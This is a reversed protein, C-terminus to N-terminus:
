SLSVLPVLWHAAMLNVAEVGLSDFPSQSFSLLTGPDGGGVKTFQSSLTVFIECM